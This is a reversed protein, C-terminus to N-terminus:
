NNYALLCFGLETGTLIQILLKGVKLSFKRLIYIPSQQPKSSPLIPLFHKISIYTEKPTIFINSVLCLHHNYLM